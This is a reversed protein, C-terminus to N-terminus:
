PKPPEPQPVPPLPVDSVVIVHHRPALDKFAVMIVEAEAFWESGPAGPQPEKGKPTHPFHSTHTHVRLASMGSLAVVGFNGAKEANSTDPLLVERLKPHWLVAKRAATESWEGGSFGTPSPWETHRTVTTVTYRPDALPADTPEANTTPHQARFETFPMRGVIRCESEMVSVRLEVSAHTFNTLPRDAGFSMRVLPETAPTVPNLVRHKGLWKALPGGDRALSRNVFPDQPPMAVYNGFPRLNMDPLTYHQEYGREADASARTLHLWTWGSGAPVVVLSGSSSALEPLRLEGELLTSPKWTQDMRKWTLTLDVQAATQRQERAARMSKATAIGELSLTLPIAAWLLSLVALGGIMRARQQLLYAQFNLVCFAVVPLLGMAVFNRLHYNEPYALFDPAREWGIEFVPDLLPLKHLAEYGFGFLAFMGIPAALSLVALVVVEVARRRSFLALLAMWSVVYAQGLLPIWVGTLARNVPAGQGAFSALELGTPLGVLFVSLFAFKAMAMHWRSIARTKWYPETGFARDALMVEFTLIALGLWHLLTWLPVKPGSSTLIDWDAITTQKASLASALQVALLVTWLALMWRMQRVDKLIIHLVTRM